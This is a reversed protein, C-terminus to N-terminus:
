QNFLVLQYCFIQYISVAITQQIENLINIFLSPARLPTNSNHDHIPPITESLPPTNGGGKRGRCSRLRSSLGIDFM